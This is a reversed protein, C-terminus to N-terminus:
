ARPSNPQPTEVMRYERGIPCSECHAVFAQEVKAVTVNRPSCYSMMPGSNATAKQRTSSQGNILEDFNM